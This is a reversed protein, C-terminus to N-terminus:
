NNNNGKPAASNVLSMSIQYMKAEDFDQRCLIAIFFGFQIYRLCLSSVRFSIKNFPLGTAAAIIRVDLRKTLHQWAGRTRVQASVEFTEGAALADARGGADNGFESRGL